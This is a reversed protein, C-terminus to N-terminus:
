PCTFIPDLAEGSYRKESMHTVTISGYESSGESPWYKACKTKSYEEINTLMILLHVRQEWIMRWWDVVTSEMPGQACIFKKHEEYGMVFNANIYDSGGDATSLKVRTQDYARIDPYRNKSLNKASADTTRDKFREPLEQLYISM